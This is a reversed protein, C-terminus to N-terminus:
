NYPWIHTYDTLFSKSNKRLHTSLLKHSQVTLRNKLVEGREQQLFIAWSWRVNYFVRAYVRFIGHICIFVNVYTPRCVIVYVSVYVFTSFCMGACVHLTENDQKLSINLNISLNKEEGSCSCLERHNGEPAVGLALFKQFVPFHWLQQSFNWFCTLASQNVTTCDFWLAM